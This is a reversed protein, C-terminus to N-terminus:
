LGSCKGVLFILWCVIINLNNGRLKRVRHTKILRGPKQKTAGMGCFLFTTLCSSFKTNVEVIEYKYKEYTFIHVYIALTLYVKLVNSWDYEVVVVGRVGVLIDANAPNFFSKPLSKMDTKLWIKVRKVTSGSLKCMKGSIRMYVYIYEYVNNNNGEEMKSSKERFFSIAKM